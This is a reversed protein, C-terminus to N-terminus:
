NGSTIGLIAKTAPTIPRGKYDKAGFKLHAPKSDESRHDKRINKQKSRTKKRKLKQQIHQGGEFQGKSEITTSDSNNTASNQQNPKKQSPTSSGSEKGTSSTASTSDDSVNWKKNTTNSTSNSANQTKAKDPNGGKHTKTSPQMKPRKVVAATRSEEFDESEVVGHFVLPEEEDQEDGGHKRKQQGKAKPKQNANAHKAGTTPPATYGLGTKSSSVPNNLHQTEKEKVQKSRVGTDEGLADTSNTTYNGGKMWEDIWNENDMQTQEM